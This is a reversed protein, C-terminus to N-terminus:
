RHFGLTLAHTTCDGWSLKAVRSDAEAWPLLWLEHLSDCGQRGWQPEPKVSLFLAEASLSWYSRLGEQASLRGTNWATDLTAADPLPLKLQLPLGAKRWVGTLCCHVPTPFCFQTTWTTTSDCPQSSGTPLPPMLPCHSCIHLLVM